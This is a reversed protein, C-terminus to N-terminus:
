RRKGYREKQKKIYTEKLPLKLYDRIKQAPTKKM